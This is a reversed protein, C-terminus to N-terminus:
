WGGMLAYSFLVMLTMTLSCSIGAIALGNFLLFKRDERLTKPRNLQEKYQMLREERQDVVMGRMENWERRLTTNEKRLRENEDLVMQAHKKADGNLLGAALAEKLYGAGQQHLVTVKAKNGVVKNATAEM